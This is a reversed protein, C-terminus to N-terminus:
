ARLMNLAAELGEKSTKEQWHPGQLERQLTGSVARAAETLAAVLGEAVLARPDDTGPRNRADISGV